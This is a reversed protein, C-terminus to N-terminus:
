LNHVINTVIFPSPGVATYGSGQLYLDYYYGGCALGPLTGNPLFDEKTLTFPIVATGAAYYSKQLAPPCDAEPREKVTFIVNENQIVRESNGDLLKFSLYANDGYSVEVTSTNPNTTVM